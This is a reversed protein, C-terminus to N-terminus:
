VHHLLLNKILYIPSDVIERRVELNYLAVFATIWSEVSEKSANFPFRKWFRKLRAKLINFWGEIANREGFTEYEHKLGLRQLTWRYWPGRDTKIVPKNNCYKLIERAFKIVDISTRWETVMVGVIEWSDVDIAAWVYWDRNGIKIKTEDVAICRRYKKSTTFVRSMKHYWMRVSEHSFREFDALFKSTKRFSIGAYYLITAILKIELN